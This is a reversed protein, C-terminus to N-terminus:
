PVAAISLVPNAAQWRGGRSSMALAEHGSLPLDTVFTPDEDHFPSPAGTCRLVEVHRPSADAPADPDDAPAPPPAVDTAEFRCALTVKPQAGCRSSGAPQCESRAEHLVVALHGERSARAEGKWLSTAGAEDRTTAAPGQMRSGFTTNSTWALVLEARGDPALELVYEGRADTIVYSLSCGHDRRASFALRYRGARALPARAAPAAPPPAPAAVFPILVAEPEAAPPSAALGCGGLLVGGLALAARVPAM